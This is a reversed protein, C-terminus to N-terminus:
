LHSTAPTRSLNADSWDHLSDKLRKEGSHRHAHQRRRLRRLRILEPPRLLQIQRRQPLIRRLRVRIPLVEVVGLRKRRKIQLGDLLVDVLRQRGRLGPPRGVIAVVPREEDAHRPMARPCITSQIPAAAGVAPLLPEVWQVAPGVVPVQVLRPAQQPRHFLLVPLLKGPAVQHHQSPVHGHLVHAELGEAKGAAAGIVPFRLQNVPSRFPLEHAVLAVGPVPLQLLRQRRHLHPQDVHIRFPRIPVRIRQRRRLVNALRKAPHRHIVFLRQRQNGTPVRKSFGVPRMRRVLAHAHLGRSPAHFLLPHTPLVLAPLPVANVRHRASQFARPRRCRRLKRRLIQLVQKGVFPHLRLARRSRRLPNRRVVRRGVQHRIRVVRRLPVRRDHEGGVQRQLHVRTILGYRHPEPLM